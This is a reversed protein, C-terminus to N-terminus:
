EGASSDSTTEAETNESTELNEESSSNEPKAEEEAKKRRVLTELAEDSDLKALEDIFEDLNNYKLDPYQFLEPKKTKPNIQLRTGEQEKGDKKIIIKEM